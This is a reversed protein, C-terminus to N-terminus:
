MPVSKSNKTRFIKERYKSVDEFSAAEDVAYVLVFGNGERM